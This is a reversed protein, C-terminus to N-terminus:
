ATQVPPAIAVPSVVALPMSAHAERGLYPGLIYAGGFIAIVVALLVLWLPYCARRTLLGEDEVYQMNTLVVDTAIPETGGLGEIHRRPLNKAFGESGESGESRGQSVHKEQPALFKGFNWMDATAPAIYDLNKVGYYEPDYANIDAHRLQMDLDDINDRNNTAWIQSLDDTPMRQYHTKPSEDIINFTSNYNGGGEQIFPYGHFGAGFFGTSTNLEADM